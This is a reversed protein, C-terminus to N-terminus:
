DRLTVADVAHHLLLVRDPRMLFNPLQRQLLLLEQQGHLPAIHGACAPHQLLGLVRLVDIHVAHIRQSSCSQQHGNVVFIQFHHLQQDVVIHVGLISQQMGDRLFENLSHLNQQVVFVDGKVALAIM